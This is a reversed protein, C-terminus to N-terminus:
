FQEGEGFDPNDSNILYLRAEHRNVTGQLTRMFLKKATSAGQLDVVWTQGLDPRTTLFTVESAWSTLRQDPEPAEESARDSCAALVLLSAVAIVSYVGPRLQNM